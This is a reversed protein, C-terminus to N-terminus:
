GFRRGRSLRCVPASDPLRNEFAGMRAWYADSNGLTITQGELNCDDVDAYLKDEPQVDQTYEVNHEVEPRPYHVRFIACPDEVIGRNCVIREYVGGLTTGHVPRSLLKALDVEVM